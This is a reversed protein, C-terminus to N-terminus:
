QCRWMEVFYTFIQRHTYEPRPPLGVLVPGSGDEPPPGPWNTMCGWDKVWHRGPVQKLCFMHMRVSDPPKWHAGQGSPYVPSPTCQSSTSSTNNHARKHRQFETHGCTFYSTVLPWRSNKKDKLALKVWTERTHPTHVSSWPKATLFARQSVGSWLYISHSYGICLWVFLHVMWM